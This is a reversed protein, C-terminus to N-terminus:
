RTCAWAVPQCGAGCANMAKTQAEDETYGRQVAYKRTRHDNVLAGCENHLALVVECKPHGCQRLAETGALRATTYDYSYGVSNSDRHWAIAGYASKKKSAAAKSDAAMVPSAAFMVLISTLTRLPLSYGRKM